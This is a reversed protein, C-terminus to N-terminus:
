QPPRGSADGEAELQMGYLDGGLPFAPPALRRERIMGLRGLLKVSRANSPSVIALLRSVRRVDRAYAVVAGAAELGFGRGWHRELFAFGIDPYDLGNRKLLGCIGLRRSTGSQLVVCMGLAGQAYGPLYKEAIYRAADEDTRISKDGIHEIYAPENMLERFFTSDGM